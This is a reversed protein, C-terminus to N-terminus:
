YSDNNVIRCESQCSQLHREDIPVDRLCEAFSVSRFHADDFSTAMKGVPTHWINEGWNYPTCYVIVYRTNHYFVKYQTIGELM